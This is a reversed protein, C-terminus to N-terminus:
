FETSPKLMTAITMVFILICFVLITNWSQRRSM